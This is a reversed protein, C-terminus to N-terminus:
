AMIQILMFLPLLGYVAAAAYRLARHEGPGRARELWQSFAYVAYTMLVVQTMFLPLLLADRDRGFYVLGFAFFLGWLVQMAVGLVPYWRAMRALGFVGILLGVLTFQAAILGFLEVWRIPARWGEAVIYPVNWGTELVFIPDASWWQPNVYEIAIGRVGIVAVIVMIGWYWPPIYSKSMALGLVVVPVFLVFLPDNIVGIGLILMLGARYQAGLLAPPPGDPRPNTMVIANFLLYILWASAIVNLRLSRALGVQSSFLLAFAILAIVLVVYPRQSLAVLLATLALAGILLFVLSGPTYDQAGGTQSWLAPSLALALGGSISLLGGMRRLTLAVGAVALAMGAARLVPTGGLWVFLAFAVLASIIPPSVERLSLRFPLVPRM